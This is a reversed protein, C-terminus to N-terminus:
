LGVAARIASEAVGDAYDHEWIVAVRYGNAALWEAKRADRDRQRPNPSTLGCSACSHYYCGNVEIVLRQQPVYIDAYWRGFRTQVDFPIGWTTLMARTKLEPGSPNAYAYKCERSCFRRDKRVRSAKRQYAAGCGHCTFQTLPKAQVSAKCTRSCFQAGGNMKLQNHQAQFQQGCVRCAKTLYARRSPHNKCTLSCFRAGKAAASPIVSFNKGCTECDREAREGWYCESSCYKKPSSARVKFAQGCRHCQREEHQATKARRLMETKCSLSCAREEARSPSRYFGQGCVCCQKASGQRRSLGECRVSCFRGGGSALLYRRPTFVTTCYECCRALRRRAEDLEARPTSGAYARHCDKCVSQLGDSAKSRRSFRSRELDLNCKICRKLELIPVANM